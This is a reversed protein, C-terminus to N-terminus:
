HSVKFARQRLPHTLVFVPKNIKGVFTCHLDKLRSVDIKIQFFCLFFIIVEQM